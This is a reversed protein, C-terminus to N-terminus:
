QSSSHKAPDSDRSATEDGKLAHSIIQERNSDRQIHVGTEQHTALAQGQCVEGATVGREERKLDAQNM